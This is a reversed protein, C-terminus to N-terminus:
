NSRTEMAERALRQWAVEESLVRVTDRSDPEVECCVENVRVGEFVDLPSLMLAECVENWTALHDIPRTEGM